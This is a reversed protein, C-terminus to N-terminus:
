YRKLGITARKNPFYVRTDFDVAAEIVPRRRLTPTLWRFFDPLSFRFEDFCAIQDERCRPPEGAPKFFQPLGSKEYGIGCVELEEALRLARLGRSLEATQFPRDDPEYPHNRGVAKVRVENRPQSLTM